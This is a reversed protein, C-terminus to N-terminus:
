PRPRHTRRITAQLMRDISSLQALRLMLSENMSKMQHQLRERTEYDDIKGVIGELTELGRQLAGISRRLMECTSMTRAIQYRANRFPLQVINAGIVDASTDAADTSKDLLQIASGM